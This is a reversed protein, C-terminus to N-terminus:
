SESPIITKLTYRIVAYDNPEIVIDDSFVTRDILCVRNSLSTSGLVDSCRIAQKYGIERITVESSGTNTIMIDFQIFPYGNSDVGAARNLLPSIGSTITNELQYDAEQAPTSGSGVSIGAYAASLTFDTNVTRPMSSYINNAGYRTSNTVDIIPLQGNYSAENSTLILAALAKFNKTLM